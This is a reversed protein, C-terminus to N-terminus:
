QLLANSVCSFFNDTNDFKTPPTVRYVVMNVLLFLISTLNVMKQM